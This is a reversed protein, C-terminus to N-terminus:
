QNALDMLWQDMDDDGEPEEVDEQEQWMPAQEIEEPEQLGSFYKRAADPNQIVARIIKNVRDPTEQNFKMMMESLSIEHPMVELFKRWLAPGVTILWPEDELKDAHNLVTYLEEKSLNQNIGHVSLMEMVGKFLEQCLIPLCIGSAVVKPEPANGGGGEEGGEEGNEDGFEVHSWGVAADKLQAQMAKIIAPIDIIYYQHTAIGSLRTYADLLEPSIANIADAVLHHVSYMAHVASGQTLTNTMIRKNIEEQLEPTIPVEETLGEEGGGEEGGEEPKQNIEAELQAEDIGWVQATIEKAKQVLEAEHNAELQFIKQMLQQVEQSAQVMDTPIQGGGEKMRNVLYDYGEGSLTHGYESLIPNKSFPHEQPINQWFNRVPALAGEEYTQAIRVFSDIAGAFTIDDEETKELKKKAKPKPTIKPRPPNFPNQKGPKEAPKETPTKTPAKTPAKVPAAQSQKKISTVRQLSAILEKKKKEKDKMRADIISALKDVKKM